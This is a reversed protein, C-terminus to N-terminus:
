LRHSTKLSPHYLTPQHSQYNISSNLCTPVKPGPCHNMPTPTRPPVAPPGSLQIPSSGWLAPGGGCHTGVGALRGDYFHSWSDWIGLFHPMQPYYFRYTARWRLCSCGREPVHWGLCGGGADWAWQCGGCVPPRWAALMPDRRDGGRPCRGGRGWARFRGLRGPCPSQFLRYFWHSRNKKM